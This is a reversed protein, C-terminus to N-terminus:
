PHMALAMFPVPGEEDEPSTGASCTVFQMWDSDCVRVLGLERMAQVFPSDDDLVLGLIGSSSRSELKGATTGEEMELPQTCRHFDSSEGGTFAVWSCSANTRLSLDGDPADCNLLASVVACADEGASSASTAHLGGILGCDM